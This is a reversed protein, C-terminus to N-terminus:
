TRSTVHSAAVNFSRVTVAESGNAAFTIPSDATGSVTLKVDEPYSGAEILVTSGAGRWRPPM